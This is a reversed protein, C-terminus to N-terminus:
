GYMRKNAVRRTLATKPDILLPRYVEIRDGCEVRRKADVRECFVGLECTALNLTPVWEALGSLRVAELVSVGPYVELRIVIQYEPRAYAVEVPITQHPENM